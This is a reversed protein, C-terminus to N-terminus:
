IINGLTLDFEKVKLLSILQWLDVFNDTKIQTKRNIIRM